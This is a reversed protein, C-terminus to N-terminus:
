YGRYRRYGYFVTAVIIVAILIYVLIDHLPPIEPMASPLLLGSVAVHTKIIYNHSSMNGLHEKVYMKKIKAKGNHYELETIVKKKNFEDPIHTIVSFKGTNDEIYAETETKNIQGDVVGSTKNSIINQITSNPKFTTVLDVGDTFAILNNELTTIAYPEADKYISVADTITINEVILNFTVNDYGLTNVTFNFLVEQENYWDKPDVEYLYVKIPTNAIISFLSGSVYIGNCFTYIPTSSTINKAVVFITHTCNPHLTTNETLVYAKQKVTVNWTYSTNFSPDTINYSILKVTYSGSTTFQYTFSPTSTSNDWEQLVDNLLWKNNTTQNIVASFTQTDGETLTLPSTPTTSIISPTTAIIQEITFTVESWESNNFVICGTANATLTKWAAGNKKVSYQQSSTLSCVTFTVNNGDTTNATFNILSSTFETVNIEVVDISPKITMNVKTTPNVTGYDCLSNTGVLTLHNLAPKTDGGYHISGVSAVPEVDVYKRAFICDWYTEGLNTGSGGEFSIWNIASTRTGSYALKGNIYLKIGSADTYFRFENWEGIKIPVNTVSWAGDWISFNDTSYQYNVALTLRDTGSKSKAVAFYDKVGSTSNVFVRGELAINTDLNIIKYLTEAAVSATFTASNMGCLSSTNTTEVGTASGDWGDHGLISGTYGEFSDLTTEKRENLIYVTQNVGDDQLWLLENGDFDLGENILTANAEAVINLVFGEKTVKVVDGDEDSIYYYGLGNKWKHYDIGQPQSLSETLSVNGSCTYDSLNIFYLKNTNLYDSVVLRNSDYDVTVGGAEAAGLCTSINYYDKITLNEAYYIVIHENLGDTGTWNEEPCYLYGNYYDCDGIHNVDVGTPFPSLNQLAISWNSKYRKDIRNTHITYYWNDSVAIGQHVDLDSSEDIKTYEDFNLITNNLDWWEGSGSIYAWITKTTTNTIGTVNAWVKTQQTLPSENWFPIITQNDADIIRLGTLTYNAGDLTFNVQYYDSIDDTGSYTITIPIKQTYNADYWVVEAKAGIIVGSITGIYSDSSSVGVLLGLVVLIFIVRRLM